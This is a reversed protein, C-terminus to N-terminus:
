KKFVKFSGVWSSRNRTQGNKKRGIEEGRSSDPRRQAKAVLVHCRLRRQPWLPKGPQCWGAPFPAVWQTCPKNLCRPTWSGVPFLASHYRYNCGNTKQQNLNSASQNAAFNNSRVQWLNLFKQVNQSHFMCCTHFCREALCGFTM